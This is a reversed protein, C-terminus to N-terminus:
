EYRSYRKRVSLDIECISLKQERTDYSFTGSTLQSWDVTGGLQINEQKKLEDRVLSAADRIARQGEQADPELTYAIGIRFTATVGTDRLDIYDEQWNIPIVYAAPYATFQSPVTDYLKKFLTKGGIKVKELIDIVAEIVDNEKIM